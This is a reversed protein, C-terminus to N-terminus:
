MAQYLPLQNSLKSQKSLLRDASSESDAARQPTPWATFIRVAMGPEKRYVTWGQVYECRWGQSRAIYRVDMHMNAGGGKSRAIYRADRSM